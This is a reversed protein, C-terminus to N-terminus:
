NGCTTSCGAASAWRGVPIACSPSFRHDGHPVSQRRARTGQILNPHSFDEPVFVNDLTYDISGTARLGM